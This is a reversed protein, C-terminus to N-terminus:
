VIRALLQRLNLHHDEPFNFRECVELVVRRSHEEPGSGLDAVTRRKRVVIEPIRCEYEDEHDTGTEILRANQSYTLSVTFTLLEDEYGLEAYLQGLSIITAATHRILRPYSLEKRGPTLTLGSIHHFLGTRFLQWFYFKAPDEEPEHQCFLSDNTFYAHTRVGSLLSFGGPFPMIVNEAAKRLKSLDIAEENFETPWAAIDLCCIERMRRPGYWQRCEAESDQIQKQFEREADPEAFQKGEYLVGRIMRGLLQRQNRLARHILGHLESARFAPRSQADTTRVYFAGQQLVDGCHDSSVHPLGSFHRIVFIAYRKGDVEPRVIDFDIAPDAYRNIFRGVDSPDFSRLQAETLGTYDNPNGNEDEGVGVVIYGGRTNAMAMAHRAFKAKGARSLRKWNQAAKYDLEQTEIGRYVIRGWETTDRHPM